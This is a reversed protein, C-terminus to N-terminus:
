DELGGLAELVTTWNLREQELRLNSGPQLTRLATWAQRESDNLNAPEARSPKPEETWLPRHALLIPLDMLLSRAAPFHSRFQSLIAFGHSDLDGWYWLRTQALWAAAALHAFGYGSGLLALTGPLPPLSLWSIENELVLVHQLRREFLCDGLAASSFDEARLSLESPVLRSTEYLRPALQTDLFRLRVLEPKDLLGYRRNFNRMGSHDAAMICGPLAVDLLEGLLARNNEVFKGHVGSASIARSFCAPGPHESFWDLCSLLAPWDGAHELLVLPHRAAWDALVPWRRSIEAHLSHLLRAEALKGALSLASALDPVLVAVPIRNNGLDRHAVERWELQWQRDAASKLAQIWVPIAAFQEVWERSAPGKIPLRLPFLACAGLVAQGLQGSDWMRQMREKLQAPGTWGAPWAASKAPRSVQREGARSM